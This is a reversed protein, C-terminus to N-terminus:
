IEFLIEEEGRFFDSSAYAIYLYTYGSMTLSYGVAM